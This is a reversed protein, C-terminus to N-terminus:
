IVSRPMGLVNIGYGFKTERGRLVLNMQQSLKVLRPRVIQHRTWTTFNAWGLVVVLRRGRSSTRNLFLFPSLITIVALANSYIVLVYENLRSAMAEKNLILGTVQALIVMVMGVFPMSIRMGM